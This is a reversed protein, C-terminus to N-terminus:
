TAPKGFLYALNNAPMEVPEAARMHADQAWRTIDHTDKYGIDPDAARLQADFRRDGDSILQGARAFPGYLVFCGGPRLALGVEKILARAQMDSILHLLNILVILDLDRYRASWDPATADLATAPAVNTLGADATYADISRLRAPDVDTPQWTLGPLASAFSAVHQGTGSAIELAAGTQPAHDRLLATIADANRAAAPAHLKAGSVPEAVSATSPLSRRTM